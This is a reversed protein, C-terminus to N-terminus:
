EVFRIARAVGDSGVLLDTKIKERANEIPVNVGLAFLASPSMEARVIRLAEGTENPNGVYNLAYFDSLLEVESQAPRKVAPTRRAPKTKRLTEKKFTQKRAIPQPKIQPNKTEATERFVEPIPEIEVEEETIEIAPVIAGQEDIPLSKNILVLGVAGFVLIVLAASAASIKQWNWLTSSRWNGALNRSQRQETKIKLKVADFLQPAAVIQEIEENSIRTAELLRRGIRDFEGKQLDQKRM